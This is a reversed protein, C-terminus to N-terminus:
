KGEGVILVEGPSLRWTVARGYGRHLLSWAEPPAGPSIEMFVAWDVLQMASGPHSFNLSRPPTAACFTGIKTNAQSGMRSSIPADSGEAPSRKKSAM